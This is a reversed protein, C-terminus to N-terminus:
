NSILQALTTDSPINFVESTEEESNWEKTQPSISGPSEIKGQWDRYATKVKESFHISNVFYDRDSDKPSNAKEIFEFGYLTDGALFFYCFLRMKNNKITSNTVLLLVPIGDIMVTEEREMTTGPHEAKLERALDSKMMGITFLSKGNDPIESTNFQAYAVSTAFMRAESVFTGYAIANPVPTQKLKPTSPVELTINGKHIQFHSWEVGAPILRDLIDTKNALKLGVALLLLLVTGVGGMIAKVNGDNMGSSATQKSKQSSSAKSSKKPKRSAVKPPLSKGRDGAAKDLAGLFDDNEVPATPKPRRKPRPATLPEGCGKCKFTKGAYESKVKHDRFCLDCTVEIPM